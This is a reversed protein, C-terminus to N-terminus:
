AGTPVAVTETVARPDRNLAERVAKLLGGPPFPKLLFQFNRVCLDPAAFDNPSHGSMFLLRVNADRHLLRRALDIGNEHPMALDSVVLDPATSAYTRFADAASSAKEVQYGAEVLTTCVFQLILPDDDVVLVKTAGSIEAVPLLMRAVTGGHPGAQLDLGGRYASLVGYALTLGFGRKHPKSSYFPDAFLRRATEASLGPGNDAVRIEVHAGPRLDGYLDACEEATLNVRRASVTVNARPTEAVADHANELLAGLAHRLPETDLPVVPLNAEVNVALACMTGWLARHRKEEDALFVGLHSAGTTGAQRRSLLRLQHTFLAGASAAKHAETMYTHLLSNKPVQQGLALESFGLIGTLVNGFDHALRRTVQAVLFLTRQRDLRDLQECWRPPEANASGLLQGLAQGALGLAAAEGASWNANAPRELWLLGARNVGDGWSAVLLAEGAAGTVTAGPLGPQLRALLGGDLNWPVLLKDNGRTSDVRYTLIPQGSQLTGLGAGTAAFAGSLERLFGDLGQSRDAGLMLQRHIFDLASRSADPPRTSTEPQADHM